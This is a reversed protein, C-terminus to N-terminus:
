EDGDKPEIYAHVFAEVERRFLDAADAMEKARDAVISGILDAGYSTRERHRFARLRDLETFLTESIIQPRIDRYPQSMRKLLKAHWGGDSHTIPAKDVNKALYELIKECGTYLKTINSALGSKSLRERAANKEAADAMYLEIEERLRSAERALDSLEARLDIL